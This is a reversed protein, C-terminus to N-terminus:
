KKGYKIGGFIKDGDEIEQEIIWKVRLRCPRKGCTSVQESFCSSFFSSCLCLFIVILIVM